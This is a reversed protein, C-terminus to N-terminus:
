FNSSYFRQFIKPRQISKGCHYMILEEDIQSPDGPDMVWDLQAQSDRWLSFVDRLHTDGFLLGRKKHTELGTHFGGFFARILQQQAKDIDIDGRKLLKYIGWIPSGDGLLIPYLDEMIPRYTEDKSEKDNKMCNEYLTISYLILMHLTQDSALDHHIPVDVVANNAEYNTNVELAITENKDNPNIDAFLDKENSLIKRSANKQPIKHPYGKMQSKDNLLEKAEEYSPLKNQSELSM